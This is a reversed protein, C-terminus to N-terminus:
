FTLFNIFLYIIIPNKGSSDNIKEDIHGDKEAAEGDGENSDLQYSNVYEEDEFLNKNEKILEKCERQIQRLKNNYSRNDGELAQLTIKLSDNEKTLKECKLNTDEFLKRIKEIENRTFNMKHIIRRQEEIKEDLLKQQKQEADMFRYLVEKEMEQKTFNIENKIKEQIQAILDIINHYSEDVPDETKADVNMVKTNLGAIYKKLETEKTNSKKFLKNIEEKYREIEDRTSNLKTKLHDVKLKEKSIFHFEKSEKKTQKHTSLKHSRFNTTTIALKNKDSPTLKFVNM